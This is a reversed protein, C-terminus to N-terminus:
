FNFKSFPVMLLFIVFEACFVFFVIIEFVRKFSSPIGESSKKSKIIFDCTLGSWYFCVFIVLFRNFIESNVNLLGAYYNLVLVFCDFYYV